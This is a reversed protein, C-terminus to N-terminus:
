QRFRPSRGSICCVIAATRRRASSHGSDIKDATPQALAALSNAVASLPAHLYLTGHQPLRSPAAGGSTSRRKTPACPIHLSPAILRRLWSCLMSIPQRSLMSALQVDLRAPMLCPPSFMTADLSAAWINLHASCRPLCPGSRMSAGPQVNLRASCSALQVDLCATCRPPSHM